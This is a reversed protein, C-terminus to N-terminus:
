PTASPYGASPAVVDAPERTRGSGPASKEARRRGVASVLGPLSITPVQRRREIAVGADVAAFVMADGISEVSFGATPFARFISKARRTIALGSETRAAEKVILWIENQVALCQRNVSAAEASDSRQPWLFGESTM